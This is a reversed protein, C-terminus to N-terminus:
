FSFLLLKRVDPPLTCTKGTVLVTAWFVYERSREMLGTSDARVKDVAEQLMVRTSWPGHEDTLTGCGCGCGSEADCGCGSEADCGTRYVFLQNTGDLLFRLRRTDIDKGNATQKFTLAVCQLMVSKPEAQQLTTWMARAADTDNRAAAM